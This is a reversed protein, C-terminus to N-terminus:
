IRAFFPQLGLATGTKLSEGIAVNCKDNRDEEDPSASGDDSVNGAM